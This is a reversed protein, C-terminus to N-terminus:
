RSGGGGSAALEFERPEVTRRIMRLDREIADLRLRIDALPPREEDYMSGKIRLLEEGMSQLAADRERVQREQVWREAQAVLWLLALAGAMGALLGLPTVAISPGGPIGPVNISFPSGLVTINQRVIVADLLLLLVVLITQVM